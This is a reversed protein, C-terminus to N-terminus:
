RNDIQEALKQFYHGSHIKDKEIIIYPMNIKRAAEGDTDDRDGILVIDRPDTNFYEAIFKLGAPDPKLANVRKDASDIVLDAEFGMVQLKEEAPYDSLVAVPIGAKKLQAFLGHLGPYVLQKLLRLPYVMIWRDVVQRIRDIDKGTRTRCWEYQDNGLNAASLGKHKEREERFIKLIKLDPWQMPRPLYYYVLSFFMKQRLKKHNYMTGDVDFVVLKINKWDIPDM